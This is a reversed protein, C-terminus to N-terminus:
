PRAAEDEFWEPAYERMMAEVEEASLLRKSVQRCRWVTMTAYLARLTATVAEEAAKVAAVDVDPPDDAPGFDEGWEDIAQEVLRAAINPAFRDPMVEREYATVEIPSRARIVALVDCGPSMWGDLWDAVAEEEEGHVLTDSDTCSFFDAM